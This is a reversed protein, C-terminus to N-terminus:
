KETESRELAGGQLPMKEGVVMEVLVCTAKEDGVGM